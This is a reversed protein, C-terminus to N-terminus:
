EHNRNYHRDRSKTNRKFLRIIYKIGLIIGTFSLISGGLLLVWMVITWLIHHAVLWKFNLGHLGQYIWFGWRRHTNYDRISGTKPNIYYCSHDADNINIRWVPLSQLQKKNKTYYTDYDTLWTVQQIPKNNIINVAEIAQRKTLNLPRIKKSSADIYLKQVGCEVKYVPIHHFHNWEVSTVTGNYASILDRYDIQFSEPSPAEKQMFRKINHKVHEKGLWQPTDTLSMMGSFAWTLAFLGFFLGMIHHWYYWKNKYPSYKTNKKRSNICTYIGIYLGDIVMISGIGALWRITKKWLEVDQRLRTFYVWHPIAGVWAWIREHRNTCQLVEGSHSSVYVQTLAKDAFHFKYIPLDNRLRGFPIWQELDYLTDICAVPSSCWQEAAKRIYLGDITALQQTSDAPLKITDEGAIIEFVSQGLNNSLRIQKIKANTPLRKEISEISPLNSLLTEQKVMKEDHNASPFQHYIMVIGSVFWIFFLVSLLTGLIRHLTFMFKTLM